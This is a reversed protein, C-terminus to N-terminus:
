ASRYQSTSFQQNYHGHLYNFAGSAADVQDDHDGDPFSVLESQFSQNWDGEALLVESFELARSLPKARQYKNLSCIVGMADFGKLKARLQATQYIGAQGPDRFWRVPVGAGDRRATNIILKDVEAPTGRSRVVDLIYSREDLLLMKVGATWDPDDGKQQAETAAFDWFRVVEGYTPVGDAANFWDSRFVKGAEARILWNGGRGKIGLFRARDVSSQAMLNQLYGPDKELLIQNNWVDANIYTLSKPPLGLSDRYDADVFKFEEDEVIFHKITGVQELDVYGDEALFPSVLEKVWSDADPNCTCRIYPRVGCTSRNSGLLFLFQSKTFHTLEEWEELCVQLGMWDFKHEELKLHRFAITAGSPFDWQLKALSPKGGLAPYIETSKDWLGGANTIQPYTRRFIVANFGPIHISRLPELLAAFTKGGGRAGGYIVLDASSSLFETQPGAQPRIVRSM